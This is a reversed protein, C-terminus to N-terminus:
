AKVQRSFSPLIMPVKKQYSRYQEGFEAVLKAEELRIALLTYLTIVANSVFFSLFPFVLFAGWIFGFTGLYLPHRLYRHVGTIILENRYDEEVLSKIGSLGMFYKKICIGMLLLGGLGIIVGTWQVISNQQWLLTSPIWVAYWILAALTVFAFITYLLRYHKFSAGM